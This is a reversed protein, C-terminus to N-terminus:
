LTRVSNSFTICRARAWRNGGLGPDSGSTGWFECNGLFVGFEMNVNGKFKSKLNEKM